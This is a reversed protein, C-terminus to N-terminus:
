RFGGYHRLLRLLKHVFGELNGRYQDAQCMKDLDIDCCSNTRIFGSEKMAEFIVERRVRVNGDSGPILVGDEHARMALISAVPPEIVQSELGVHEPTINFPYVRPEIWGPYAEPSTHYAEIKEILMIFRVEEDTAGRCYTIEGEANRWLIRIQGKDYLGVGPRDWEFPLGKYNTSSM